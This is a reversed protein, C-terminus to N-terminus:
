PPSLPGAIAACSLEGDLTAMSELPLQYMASVDLLRMRMTVGAPTILVMAPFPGPVPIDPEVPSLPGADAASSLAGRPSAKSVKPLRYTASEPLLSTRLIVGAPRM